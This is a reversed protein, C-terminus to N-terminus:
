KELSVDIEQSKLINKVPKLIDPNAVVEDFFKEAEERKAFWKIGIGDQKVGYMTGTSASIEETLELKM